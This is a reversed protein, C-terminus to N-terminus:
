ALQLYGETPALFKLDGGGATLPFGTGDFYVLPISDADNTVHKYLVLAAVQRTGVGVASFTIDDANFEARNNAADEAVAESTLAVRAYGSGDMEDLTTFDGIFNSDDETDATTNTMVLMARIDDSTLDIEGTVFGRKPDNYAFSM